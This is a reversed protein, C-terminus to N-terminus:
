QQQKRESPTDRRHGITHPVPRHSFLPQTTSVELSLVTSQVQFFTTIKNLRDYDNVQLRMLITHDKDLLEATTIEPISEMSRQLDHGSRGPEQVIRILASIPRAAADPYGRIITYGGIHGDLELKLIREECQAKSVGTREALIHSSLRGEDELINLIKLDIRDFELAMVGCGKTRDIDNGPLLARGLLTSPQSSEPAWGSSTRQSTQLPPM